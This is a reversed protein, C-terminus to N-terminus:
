RKKGGKKKGGKAKKAMNTNGGKKPPIQSPEVADCRQHRGARWGSHKRRGGGRRPQAIRM